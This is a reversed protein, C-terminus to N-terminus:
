AAASSTVINLFNGQTRLAEVLVERATDKCMGCNGSCGTAMKLQELSQVGDEAARHIDSDTVANCICIYM